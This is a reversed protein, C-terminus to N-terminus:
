PTRARRTPAGAQVGSASSLAGNAVAGDGTASVGIGTATALAGTAVAGNGTATSGTGTATAGAGIATATPGAVALDGCALSTPNGDSVAGGDTDGPGAVGDGNSDLLCESAAAPAAMALAMIAASTAFAARAAFRSSRYAMVSIGQTLKEPANAGHTLIISGRM